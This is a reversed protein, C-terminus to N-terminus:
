SISRFERNTGEGMVYSFHFRKGIIEGFRFHVPFPALGSFEAVRLPPLPATGSTDAVVAAARRWGFFQGHVMNHGYGTPAPACFAVDDCRALFAVVGFSM